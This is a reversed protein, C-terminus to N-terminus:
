SPDFVSTLVEEVYRNTPEYNFCLDLLALADELAQRYNPSNPHLRDIHAPSLLQAISAFLSDRPGSWQPLLVPSTPRELIVIIFFSPISVQRVLNSYVPILEDIPVGIDHIMLNM